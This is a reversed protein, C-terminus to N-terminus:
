RRNACSTRGRSLNGGRDQIWRLGPSMSGACRRTWGGMLITFDLDTFFQRCLAGLRGGGKILPSSLLSPLAATDYLHVRLDDGNSAGGPGEQHPCDGEQGPATPIRWNRAMAVPSGVAFWGW